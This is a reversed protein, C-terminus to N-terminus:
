NHQAPYLYERFSKTMRSYIEEQSYGQSLGVKVAGGAIADFRPWRIDFGPYEALLHDSYARYMLRSGKWAGGCLTSPLSLCDPDVLRVREILAAMQKGMDIGAQTIIGGALADGADASASVFPAFSALVARPSSATYVRDVLARASARTVTKVLGLWIALQDTLATPEGWDELAHIAAILGRQGICGGSGEDGLMMGWGGQSRTGAPGTYFVGSGTGSLAAFGHQGGIGAMLGMLGEGIRVVPTVIGFAALAEEMYHIPSPMSVLCAEIPLGSLAQAASGMCSDINGRLSQEPIFNPNVGEAQATHLISLQEDIVLMILKTGGGDCCLWYRM